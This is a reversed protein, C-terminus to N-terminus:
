KIDPKKLDRTGCVNRGKATVRKSIAVKGACITCMGPTATEISSFCFDAFAVYFKTEREWLTENVCFDELIREKKLVKLTKILVISFM